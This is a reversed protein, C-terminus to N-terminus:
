DGNKRLLGHFITVQRLYVGCVWHRDLDDYLMPAWGVGHEFIESTDFGTPIVLESDVGGVGDM